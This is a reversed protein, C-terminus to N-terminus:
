SFNTHKKLLWGVWIMSSFCVVLLVVFWFINVPMSPAVAFCALVVFVAVAAIVIVGDWWRYGRVVKSLPDKGDVAELVFKEDLNYRKCEKEIAKDWFKREETEPEASSILGAGAIMIISGGVIAVITGAGLGELTMFVLASWALGWLQNTNALPIGRGIGIYKAAFQQFLDGVVWFAGGLVIWFLLHGAFIIADIFATGGMFIIGLLLVTLVEGVTFITVFSLPNMGSLYAKRYPIYMTGWLLGAGIAALLGHFAIGTAAGSAVTAGALIIMAVVVAIVGGIVRIWQKKKAGRLENFLIIGWILGIVCNSNWIPFAIALGVDKIAFVTLTNAVGWLAGALIGWIILHKTKGIDTFVYSTGKVMTPLTWRAVFVGIVMAATVVFPSVGVKVLLTPAEASGLWVGAALASIVGLFGLTRVPNLNGMRKSNM